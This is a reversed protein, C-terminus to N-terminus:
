VPHQDNGGTQPTDQSVSALFSASRWSWQQPVPILPLLFSVGVCALPTYRNLRFFTGKQLLAKYFLFCATIIVTVHLIYPIM